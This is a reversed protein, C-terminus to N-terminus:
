EDKMEELAKITKSLLFVLDFDLSEIENRDYDWVMIWRHNTFIEIAIDKAVSDFILLEDYDNFVFGREEWEKICEDLTLPKNQNILEQLTNCYVLHKNLMKTGDLESHVLDKLEDLAEQYKNM